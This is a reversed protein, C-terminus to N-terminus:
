KNIYKSYKNIFSGLSRILRELSEPDDRLRQNIELQIIDIDTLGYLGQTIFGGKFPDNYKINNIGNLNFEEELEKITSYDVSLNNLTGFEIDFDRDSRSGHLDIVLKINKDKIIRRMEINYKDYNDRNSDTGTDNLKIISYSKYYKNLYLSIAKTYKENYKVSGDEKRQIMTHPSSFLVPIDGKLIIFDGNISKNELENIEDIFVM